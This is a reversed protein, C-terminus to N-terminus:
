APTVIYAGPLLKIEVYTAGTQDFFMDPDSGGQLRDTFAMNYCNTLSQFDSSYCNYWTPQSPQIAAGYWQSLDATSPQLSLLYFFEGTSLQGIPTNALAGETVDFVTGALNAALQNVAAQAAVTIACGAWGFNFGALLDGVVRGALDNEIQAESFPAPGSPDGTWDVIYPPNAGYIGTQAGLAADTIYIDFTGVIAGQGSMQIGPVGKLTPIRLNAGNPNLDALAQATMTYSQAESWQPAINSTTTSGAFGFLTGSPVTATDDVTTYSAIQLVTGATRLADILSGPGTWAPYPEAGTFQTPDYLSPSLIRATGTITVSDTGSASVYTNGSAAVVANTPVKTDSTLADFIATGASTTLPNNAPPQVVAGTACSRVSVEFPIGVFDVYSADINSNGTAVTPFISPEVYGYVTYFDPDSPLQAAPITTSALEAGLSFYIRGGAYDNIAFTPMATPTPAGAITPLMDALTYSQGSTATGTALATSAGYTQTPAGTATGIQAGLFKVFVLDDPVGTQNNVVFTANCAAPAVYTFTAASTVATTGTPVDVVVSVQGANLAVPTVVTLETDSVVTPTAGVQDFQVATAGTLLTGNITVTTGGTTPGSAPSIATVAPAIFILTGAKMSSGDAFHVTVSVSGAQSTVGTLATLETDSKSAINVTSTGFAITRAGSLLTGTITVTTGGTNPASDPSMSTVTPGGSAPSVGTVTAVDTVDM